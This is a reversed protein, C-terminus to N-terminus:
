SQITVQLYSIAQEPSAVMLNQAISYAVRCEPVIFFAQNPKLDHIATTMSKTNKPAVSFKMDIAAKCNTGEFIALDCETGDATRYFYYQYHEGLTNIMNEIVYGEWLFGLMPHRLIDEYTTLGLLHNIVGSDRFYIKPTKILRKGINTYYPQLIRIIFSKEFFSIINRVTTISLGISNALNSYNLLNGHVSALMYLLRQVDNSSSGLGLMLLDREIYASLFSRLWQRRILDDNLTFAVPYGGRLWHVRFDSLSSIEQFFFPTLENYVIRGALTENSMLLLDKSASGLLIFRGNIHHSDIASRLVPFLEPRRQIEDIIVTKDQVTQIFEVPHDFVSSDTPNELDLYVSEKDLQSSIEKALTTKGVQRSGLIAVSPFHKMLLLIQSEIKRKIYM